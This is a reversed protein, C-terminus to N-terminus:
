RWFGGDSNARRCTTELTLTDGLEVTAADGPQIPQDSAQVAVLLFAVARGTLPLTIDGSAVPLGNM